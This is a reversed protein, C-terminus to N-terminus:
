GSTLLDPRKLALSSVLGLGAGMCITMSPLLVFIWPSSFAAWGILGVAGLFVAYGGTFFAILLAIAVRSDTLRDAIRPGILLGVIFPLEYAVAVAPSKVVYAISLSVVGAAMALVTVAFRRSESAAPERPMRITRLSGLRTQPWDVEVRVLGGTPVASSRLRKPGEDSPALNGTPARPHTAIALGQEVTLVVFRSPRTQNLGLRYPLVLQGGVAQKRPPSALPWPIFLSRVRDRRVIGLDTLVLDDPGVGRPAGAALYILIGEIFAVAPIMYPGAIELGRPSAAVQLVLWVLPAPFVAAPIWRTWPNRSDFSLPFAISVGETSRAGEM